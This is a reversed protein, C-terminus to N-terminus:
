RREGPESPPPPEGFFTYAPYRRANRTLEALDESTSRLSRLIRRVDDQQDTLLVDLKALTRNLREVTQPLGETAAAMNAGATKMDGLTSQIDAESSELLRRATEGAEAIDSPATDFGPNELIESLRELTTRAEALLKGAEARMQELHANDLQAKVEVLLQDLHRAIGAIDAEEIKKLTRSTSFVAEELRAGVSPASPIYYHRPTWDFGLPQYREPDVFDMELYTLGTLGQPRLRVRLGEEKMDSLLEGLSDREPRQLMARSLAMRILVYGRRQGVPKHTEYVNYTFDINDVNGVQVGRYKVPSGEELGQVSENMYTEMYLKDQLLAGAGLAVVAAVLIAAGALTFLGIKFYNAKTPM